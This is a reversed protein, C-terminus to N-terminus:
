KEYGGTSIHKDWLLYYIIINNPTFFHYKRNNLTSFIILNNESVTNANRYSKLTLQNFNPNVNTCAIPVNEEEDHIQTTEGDKKLRGIHKKCQNPAETRRNKSNQPRDNPKDTLIIAKKTITDM